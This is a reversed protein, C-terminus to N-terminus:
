GRQRRRIEQRARKSIEETMKSFLQRVGACSQDHDIGGRGSFRMPATHGMGLKIRLPDVQEPPHGQLADLLAALGEGGSTHAGGPLERVGLSVSGRGEPRNIDSEGARSGTIRQPPM